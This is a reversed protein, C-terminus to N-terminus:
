KVRFAERAAATTDEIKVDGEGLEPQPPYKIMEIQRTSDQQRTEVPIAMGVRVRESNPSTITRTLTTAGLTADTSPDVLPIKETLPTSGPMTITSEPYYVNDLHLRLTIDYAVRGFAVHASLIGENELLKNCDERIIEKLETGSLAKNIVKESGTPM